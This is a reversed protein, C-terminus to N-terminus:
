SSEGIPLLDDDPVPDDHRDRTRLRTRVSSLAEAVRIITFLLVAMGALMVLTAFMGETDDADRYLTLLMGLGEGGMTFEGVVAGTVSLAIGARLGALVSPMALPAEVWVLSQFWGAGDL